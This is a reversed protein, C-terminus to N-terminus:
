GAVPLKLKRGKGYDLVAPERNGKKLRWAVTIPAVKGPPLTIAIGLRRVEVPPLSSPQQFAGFLGHAFGAAVFRVSAGLPEGAADRIVIKRTDLKLPADGRNRVKAVVVRDSALDAPKYAQVKGDFALSAPSGSSGGCGALVAATVVAAGAIRARSV